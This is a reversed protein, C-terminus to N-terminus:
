ENRPEIVVLNALGERGVIEYYVSVLDGPRLEALTAESHACTFIPTAPAVHLTLRWIKGRFQREVVFTNGQANVSVVRAVVERQVERGNASLKGVSVLALAAAIVLPLTIKM